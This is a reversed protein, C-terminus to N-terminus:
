NHNANIKRTLAGKLWIVQKLAEPLNVVTYRTLQEARSICALNELEIRTKDGDKFMIVHSQPVPGNHQEWLAIHAAIWGSETKRFLYGDQWVREEGTTAFRAKVLKLRRACAFISRETRGLAAAIELNSMTPYNISM